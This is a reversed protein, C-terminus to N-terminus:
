ALDSIARRIPLATQLGRSWTWNIEITSSRTLSRDVLGLKGKLVHPRVIADSISADPGSVKGSHSQADIFYGQQTALDVRIAGSETLARIPAPSIQAIRIAGSKTQAQM